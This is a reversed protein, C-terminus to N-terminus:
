DSFAPGYKNDPGGDRCFWVLLLIPGVLPIFGFLFNWGSKDIDHLRRAVGAASPITVSFGLIYSTAVGLAAAASPDAGFLAAVLSVVFIAGYTALFCFLTWFWFESRSARGKFKAYNKFHFKISEVFKMSKPANPSRTGVSPQPFSVAHSDPQTIPPALHSILRFGCSSCFAQENQVSIGCKSCFM